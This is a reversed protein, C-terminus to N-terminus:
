IGKKGGKDVGFTENEKKLGREKQDVKISVEGRNGGGSVLLAKGRKDPAGV